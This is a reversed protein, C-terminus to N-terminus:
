TPTRFGSPVIGQILIARGTCLSSASGNRTLTTSTPTESQGRKTTLLIMGQLPKVFMACVCVSVSMFWTTHVWLDRMIAGRVLRTQTAHSIFTVRLM